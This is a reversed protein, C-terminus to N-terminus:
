FFLYSAFLVRLNSISKTDNVKGKIDATGYDAVTYEVEGAFRVKGQTWQVRPSIRIISAINGGRVYSNGAINKESGLNETYGAFLGYQLAKGKIIEGWFSLTKLTTYEEIATTEASNTVAYGGLMLMDYMDGAYVAEAKLTLDDKVFKAFGQFAMSTVKEDTKYGTSTKLRPVLSKYNAAVGIVTSRSVYKMNINLMPMASNRLYSSSGGDPGTSVFDRQAFATFSLYLNNKTQKTFRIQPNRSFPQFPAGTNFSIVGPFCETIFMPHWYQGILLSSTEWSLKLFAHRLRFGNVDSNSHGFFAGEVVGSTKAKGVDPGKIIGTLRTQIALMNLNAKANADKGNVDLDEGKPFLLFHGERAAVTQRSDFIVDTKVFGKVKIGFEKEGCIVKSMLTMQLLLVLILLFLFKKL